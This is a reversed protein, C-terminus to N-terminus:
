TVSSFHTIYTFTCKIRWNYNRLKDFHAMLPFNTVISTDVTCLIPYSNIELSSFQELVFMQTLKGSFLMDDNVFPHISETKIQEYSLSGFLQNILTGAIM